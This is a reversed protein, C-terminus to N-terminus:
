HGCGCAGGGCCGGAQPIDDLAVATDGRGVAFVSLLREARHGASCTAPRASESMPRREEFRTRCTPCFFEYVAM